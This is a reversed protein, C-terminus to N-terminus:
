SCYLIKATIRKIRNEDQYAFWETFGPIPSLTGFTKIEPLEEQIEYLVRKILFHGLTVRALGEQCNSISYFTATNIKKGKVTDPKMIEQLELRGFNKHAELLGYVTGPVASALYTYDM